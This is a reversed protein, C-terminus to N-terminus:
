EDEDIDVGEVLKKVRDTFVESLDKLQDPNEMADKYVAEIFTGFLPDNEISDLENTPEVVLTPKDEDDVKLEIVVEDSSLLKAFEAPIVLAMSGGHKFLKKSLKM